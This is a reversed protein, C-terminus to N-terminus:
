KPNPNSNPGYLILSKAKTHRYDMNVFNTTVVYKKEINIKLVSFHPRPDLIFVGVNGIHTVLTLPCIPTKNLGFLSSILDYLASFLYTGTQLHSWKTEKRRELAPCCPSKKQVKVYREVLLLVACWNVNGLKAAM